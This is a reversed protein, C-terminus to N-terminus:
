TGYIPYQYAEIGAVFTDGAGNDSYSIRKFM